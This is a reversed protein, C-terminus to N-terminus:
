RRRLVVRNHKEEVIRYDDRLNSLIAAGGAAVGLAIASSTVGGGLVATAVGATALAGPIGVGHFSNGM